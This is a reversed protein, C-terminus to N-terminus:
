RPDEDVRSLAFLNNLFVSLLVSVSMSVIAAAFPVQTSEHPYIRPLYRFVVLAIGVALLVLVITSFILHGSLWHM